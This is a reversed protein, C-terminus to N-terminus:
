GTKLITKFDPLFEELLTEEVHKSLSSSVRSFAAERGKFDLVTRAAATELAAIEGKKDQFKEKEYPHWSLERCFYVSECKAMRYTRVLHNREHCNSCRQGTNGLASAANRIKACTEELDKRKASADKLKFELEQRKEEICRETPSLLQRRSTSLSVDSTKPVRYEDADQNSGLTCVKERAPGQLQQTSTRHCKLGSKVREPTRLPAIINMVLRKHGEPLFHLDELVTLYQASLTSTFEKKRFEGAYLIM